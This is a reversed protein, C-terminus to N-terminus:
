TQREVKFYSLESTAPYIKLKDNLAIMDSWRVNSCHPPPFRSIDNLSYFKEFQMGCRHWVYLPPKFVQFLKPHAYPLVSMGKGGCLYGWIKSLEPQFGLHHLHPFSGLVSDNLSYFKEFQM